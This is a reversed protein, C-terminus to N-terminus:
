ASVREREFWMGIESLPMPRSFLYGQASACGLSKLAGLEAETEVGEVICELQMDVCLALLSKVIKFSAPNLHIDTVFSRDIKLKTLSM